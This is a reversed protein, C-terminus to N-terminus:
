RAITAETPEALNPNGRAAILCGGMILGAGVTTALTIEDGFFFYGLGVAWIFASYETPILFQAEARAYSWSMLFQGGLSLGTVGALALWLNYPLASAFWPAALGLLVVLAVSQFFIIETPKALLAQQRALILNYGYFVTSLLVAGAGMAADPSYTQGGVKGGLITIVGALGASSAWITSKGIREKLVIGALLVAFLPAVFSLGIAEALPLRALGWFFLMLVIAIVSTRLMHVRLATRTPLSRQGTAWATGAIIVALISRWLVTNYVGVAIVLMKMGADMASLLFVAFTCILVPVM